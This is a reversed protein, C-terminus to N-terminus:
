AGAGATSPGGPPRRRSPLAKIMAEAFAAAGAENPLSRLIRLTLPVDLQINVPEGPARADLHSPLNRNVLERLADYANTGIRQFQPELDDPTLERNAM